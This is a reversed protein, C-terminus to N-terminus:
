EGLLLRLPGNTMSVSDGLRDYAHESNVTAVPVELLTMIGDDGEM